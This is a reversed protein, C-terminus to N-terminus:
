TDGSEIGVHATNYVISGNMVLINDIESTDTELNLVFSLRDGVEIDAVADWPVTFTAKYMKYQTGTTVTVVDALTQTKVVSDGSAM